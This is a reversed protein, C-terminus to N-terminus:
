PEIRIKVGSDETVFAAIRDGIGLNFLYEGPTIDDGVITYLQGHYSAKAGIRKLGKYDYVCYSFADGPLYHAKISKAFDKHQFEVTASNPNHISFDIHLTDGHHFVPTKDSLANTISFRTVLRNATSFDDSFFGEVEIDGVQYVESRDNVPSCIFVPRGIWATDFQWLDYQTM